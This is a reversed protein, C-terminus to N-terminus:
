VLAIFSAAITLIALYYLSYNVYYLKRSTNEKFYIGSLVLDSAFFLVFGVFMLISFLSFGLIIMNAFSLALATSLGFTYILTLNTSKSYNLKMPKQMFFIVLVMLIGFGTCITTALNSNSIMIFALSFFIHASFFSASGLNIIKYKDENKFELLALLIDGFLCFILGILFMVAITNIILGTKFMSYIAVVIVSISATGKLFLSMLPQKENQMVIFLTCIVFSFALLVYFLAM